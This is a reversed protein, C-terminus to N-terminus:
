LRGHRSKLLKTISKESTSKAEKALNKQFLKLLRRMNEVFCHKSIKAIAKEYLPRFQPEKALFMGILAESAIGKNTTEDSAQSSIDNNDSVM